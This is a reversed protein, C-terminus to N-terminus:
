MDPKKHIIPCIYGHKKLNLPPFDMIADKEMIIAVWQCTPNIMNPIKKITKSRKLIIESADIVQAIKYGVTFITEM